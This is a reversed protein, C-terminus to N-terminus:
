APADEVLELLEGAAGRVLATRRGAYPAATAVAPGAAFPACVAGLDGVLVTVMSLGPPLEGPRVPRPGAQPPYEDIEVLFSAPFRAIGLRIEHDPPLGWAENLVAVRTTRPETVPMGLADRYFALMADADPGGLVVIFTRDVFSRASGLEFLSKGPPVRTLYGLEGAPGLVPMARINPNFALNAPPGVIRFPSAALRAALADPDEVLIENANWGHTRMASYGPTAPAELLQLYVPSGSAPQLVARARGAMAPAAWRAATPADVVDRAITRFALQDRYAAEVSALDPVVLTVAGSARVVPGTSPVSSSM